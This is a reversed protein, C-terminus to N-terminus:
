SGHDDHVLGIEHVVCCRKALRVMCCTIIHYDRADRVADADLWQLTLQRVANRQKGAGRADPFGGKEVQQLWAQPESCGFHTASATGSTVRGRGGFHM